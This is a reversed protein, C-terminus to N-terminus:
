AKKTTCNFMWQVGYADTLTGFKAGWFTDQLPMTVKGGAALADFRAAMEAADDFDLCVHASGGATFPDEPRNDSIMIVGGDGLRVFAHIVREPTKSDKSMDGFRQIHEAKAGLAREYHAIASNATGNLILYPNLSKIPMAAAGTHSSQQKSRRDRSFEDTEDSIECRYFCDPKVTQKSPTVPTM